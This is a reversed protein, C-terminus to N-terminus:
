SKTTCCSSDSQQEHFGLLLGNWQRNAYDTIADSPAWVALLENRKCLANEAPTTGWERVDRM